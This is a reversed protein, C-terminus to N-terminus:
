LIVKADAYDFNRLYFRDNDTCLKRNDQFIILSIFVNGSVNPNKDQM